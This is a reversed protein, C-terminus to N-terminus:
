LKSGMNIHVAKTQIYAELAAEGLERGIGSQKMGGFPVRVDSDQSSNVWVTGVEMQDAVRHARELDSTFISASLGYISDNAIAVAEAEDEFRTITVVPGFIEEKFISMSPTVDTFVTPATFFGKGGVDIPLGGTALVVGEQKGLNIHKLIQDYQAKSVQPEQYTDKEWQSGVKSVTKVRDLFQILFRDYVASQVLIRSTATCIQGQNSMIGMHSWNVAQDLDADAFVVLPSKGGTELTIKKLTQAATQMIGIATATSGTFAIKDVLHHEVLASGVERGYGDVINVVGPPLGAKKILSALVLISLPTQEAPKLVVTNGCAMAPGLKWTAMSLPYNWPIIQAVVGIPQRVTYALESLKDTWGAYYKLVSIPDVLDGEFAESYKKGSHFRPNACSDRHQTESRDGNDWADITVLLERNDEILGALRHLM